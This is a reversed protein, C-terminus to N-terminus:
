LWKSNVFNIFNEEPIREIMEYVTYEQRFFYTKNVM